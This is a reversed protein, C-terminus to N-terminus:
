ELHKGPVLYHQVYDRVAEDFPMASVDCGVGRLKEMDAQTYYQYKGRLEEPMPIYEVQPDMDLGAFIARALDNWSHAQGTGVNYLGGLEPHDLFFLTMKVADKIYIFDRLQEGDGFDARHSQFLKLRGTDRIQEYGKLVFSRMNGKHYENPGYVNFYKLGVIRDLLGRRRAWLDFLQKSYGYMNLPRLEQIRQEDDAFGLVGDGYTAASSAYIFRAKRRLAFTALNKTVAFNNNVLYTCDPEMTDSCAGLHIVAEIEPLVQGQEIRAYFDDKELYDSFSLGRLNKWKEKKGLNDVVLIDDMGRANLAWIVASGIFGAGGTVAIM